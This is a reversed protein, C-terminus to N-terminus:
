PHAVFITGDEAPGKVNGGYYTLGCLNGHVDFLVPGGAYGDSSGTFNYIIKQGFGGNRGRHLTFLTGANHTGGGYTSGFFNGNTDLILSEPTFGRGTRGDFTVLVKETWAGGAPTLEYATGCGASCHGPSTGAVTTGFLNGEADFIVGGFPWHGDSTSGFNHLVTESWGGGQPSLEFVTGCGPFENLICYNMQINGGGVTTGYMNGSADFTLGSVSGSGDPQGQFDYLVNATWVGAGEDVLEFVTSAGHTGGSFTTGYLNGAQDFILSAQPHTGDTSSGGFSYLTTESWGGGTPTLEYVIGLGNDGGAYTTGYMNGSDDLLLGSASQGTSFQYIVQYNWVGGGAPSLEFVLPNGGSGFATGYFHGASDLVLSGPNQGSAGGQFRYLISGSLAMASGM